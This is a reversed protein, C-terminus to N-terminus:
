DQDDLSKIVWNMPARERGNALSFAKCDATLIGVFVAVVDFCNIADIIGHKLGCSHNALGNFLSLRGGGGATMTGRGLVAV